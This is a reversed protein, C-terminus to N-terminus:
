QFEFACFKIYIYENKETEQGIFVNNTLILHLPRM